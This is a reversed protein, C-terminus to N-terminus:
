PLINSVLIQLAPFFALSLVGDSGLRAVEGYRGAAPMRHVEVIREPLNVLWFEPVGASAYLATKLGRDKQLSTNSVEIVLLAVGFLLGFTFNRGLLRAGRQQFDRM